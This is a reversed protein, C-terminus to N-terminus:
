QDNNSWYKDAKMVGNNTLVQDHNISFGAAHYHGGGGMRKAIESVDIGEPSSRLSYVRKRLTDFYMMAFPHGKSLENGIESILSTSNICPVTYDFLSVMNAPESIKSDIQQKQYRLIASGATALEGVKGDELYPKWSEFTMPISQLGASVEKSNHMEWKWLDRDQIYKILLPADEPSEGLMINHTLMAGSATMDFYLQIDSEYDIGILNAEATKHHDIITIGSAVKDMELLKERPYSFDVIYVEAGTVDPPESGHHAPVYECVERAGDMWQKVMLASGFGDACNAHYICINKSM